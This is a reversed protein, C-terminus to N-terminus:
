LRIRRPELRLMSPNVLESAHLLASIRFLTLDATSSAARAQSRYQGSVSHYLVPQYGRNREQPQRFARKANSALFVVAMTTAACVNEARDYEYPTQAPSYGSKGLEDTALFQRSDERSVHVLSHYDSVMTQIDSFDSDDANAIVAMLKPLSPRDGQLWSREWIAPGDPENVVYNLTASREM